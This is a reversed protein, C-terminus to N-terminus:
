EQINSSKDKSVELVRIDNGNSAAIGYLVMDYGADIAQSYASAPIPIGNSVTVDSGGIYITNASNNYIQVARRGFLQGYNPLTVVTTGVTNDTTKVAGNLANLTVNTVPPTTLTPRSTYEALTDAMRRLIATDSSKERGQLAKELSQVADIVGSMDIPDNKPFDLKPFNIEPPKATSAAQAWVTLKQELSQFYKGLDDMNTVRVPPQKTVEVKGTVNLIKPLAIPKKIQTYLLSLLQGIKEVTSVLVKDEEHKIVLSPGSNSEVRKGMAQAMGNILEQTQRQQSLQQRASYDIM